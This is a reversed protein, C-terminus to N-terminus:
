PQREFFARMRERHYDNLVQYQEYSAFYDPEDRRTFYSLARVPEQRMTRSQQQGQAMARRAEAPDLTAPATTANSVFRGQQVARVLADQKLQGAREYMPGAEKSYDEVLTQLERFAAPSLLKGAPNCVGDALVAEASKMPSQVIAWSGKGWGLKSLQEELVGAVTLVPASVTPASASPVHPAASARESNGEPQSPEVQEGAQEIRPLAPDAATAGPPNVPARDKGVVLYAGTAVVLVVVAVKVPAPM